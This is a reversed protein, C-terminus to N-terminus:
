HAQWHPHPRIPLLHVSPSFAMQTPTLGLTHLSTQTFYLKHM